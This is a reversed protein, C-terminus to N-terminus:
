LLSSYVPDLWIKERGEGLVVKWDGSRMVIFASEGELGENLRKGEQIYNIKVDRFIQIWSKGQREMASTAPKHCMNELM